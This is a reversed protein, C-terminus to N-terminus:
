LRRAPQAPLRALLAVEGRRGSVQRASRKYDAVPQRGVGVESDPPVHYEHRVDKPVVIWVPILEGSRHLLVPLEPLDSGGDHREASGV